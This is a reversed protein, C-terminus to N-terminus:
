LAQNIRTKLQLSANSTVATSPLPSTVSASGAPWTTATVSGAATSQNSTSEARTRAITDRPIRANVPVSVSAAAQPRNTVAVSTTPILTLVCAAGNCTGRAATISAIAAPNCAAPTAAVLM